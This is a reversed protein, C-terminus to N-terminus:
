LRNAISLVTLVYADSHNYDYIAAELEAAIGGGDSCLMKAATYVADVPNYPTPPSLGGPGVTAYAAFTGPEFQMPGEAGAYNSGSRVGPALSTGNDSEVTGIAALVQWPLGPCTNAAEQYLALMGPPVTFTGPHESPAPEQVAAPPTSLLSPAYGPLTGLLLATVGALSVGVVTAALPLAAMSLGLARSSIPM